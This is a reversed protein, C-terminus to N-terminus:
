HAAKAMEEHMAAMKTATKAADSDRQVISRCHEGLTPYKPIIHASPNKYYAAAMEEHEKADVEFQRAESRYYNALKMHEAPTSATAILAKVENKSLASAPEAAYVTCAGAAALAFLLSFIRNM